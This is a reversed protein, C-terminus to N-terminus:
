IKKSNNKLWSAIEEINKNVVDIDVVFKIIERHNVELLYGNKNLFRMTSFYATRKNGDEFPHNKALSHFLAAAALWISSYLFRGGFQAKPREIASHLLTFDRVGERGGGVELMRDHIILVEDLTVFRM